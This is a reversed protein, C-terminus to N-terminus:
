NPVWTALMRCLKLDKHLPPNVIKALVDYAQGLKRVSKWWDNEMEPTINTISAKAHLNRQDAVEAASKGEKSKQYNNIDTNEKLGRVM